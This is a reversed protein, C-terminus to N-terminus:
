INRPKQSKCKVLLSKLTTKVDSSKLFRGVSRPSIEKVIGRKIAIRALETPTWHTVPLESTAPLECALAVIQVIEELSFKGPNGRRQEDMLVLIMKKRLAEDDMGESEAQNLLVAADQWRNRWLRVRNRTLRLLLSIETNTMSSAAYLVLQARQVLRSPNTHARTIQSLLHHQKESLMITKAVPQPM